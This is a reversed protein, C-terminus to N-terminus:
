LTSVKPSCYFCYCLHLSRRSHQKNTNLQLQAISYLIVKQASCNIKMSQLTHFNPYPFHQSIRLLGATVSLCKGCINCQPLLKCVGSSDPQGVHTFIQKKLNNKSELIKSRWIKLFVLKLTRNREFYGLSGGISGASLSSYITYHCLPWCRDCYLSSQSGNTWIQDCAYQEQKGHPM